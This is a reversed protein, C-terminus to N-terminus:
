RQRHVQAQFAFTDHVGQSFGLIGDYPPDASALLDALRELTSDGGRYEDTEEDRDWWGLTREVAKEDGEAAALAAATETPLKVEHTGDIYDLQAISKLSRRLAGTQRSFATASRTYGHLMLIRLPTSMM